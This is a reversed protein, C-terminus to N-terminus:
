CMCAGHNLGCASCQTSLGDKTEVAHWADKCSKTPGGFDDTPHRHPEPSDFTPCRSPTVVSKTSQDREILGLTYRARNLAWDVFETDNAFDRRDHRRANILNKLEEIALTADPPQSARRNRLEVLCELVERVFGYGLGGSNYVVILSDLDANSVRQNSTLNDAGKCLAVHAGSNAMDVASPEKKDQRLVLVKSCHPCRKEATM